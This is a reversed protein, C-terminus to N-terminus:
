QRAAVYWDAFAQRRGRRAVAVSRDFLALEEGPWSAPTAEAASRCAIGREAAAYAAKGVQRCESYPVKAGGSFPYTAPLGAASLGADTVADVFSREPGHGITFEMVAPRSEPRLDYLSHIEGVFNQRANAAAVALTRCLYLVGFAGRPNWRGGLAKSFSTDCCDQWHPDCVRYYRGHRAIHRFRV